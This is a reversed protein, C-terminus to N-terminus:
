DFETEVVLLACMAQLHGDGGGDVKLLADAGQQGFLGGAAERQQATEESSEIFYESILDADLM